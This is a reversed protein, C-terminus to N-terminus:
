NHIWQTGRALVLNGRDRVLRSDGSGRSVRRRGGDHRRQRYQTRDLAVGVTRSVRGSREPPHLNDNGCAVDLVRAARPLGIREVFKEAERSTFNAIQGFDGAMWTTKMRSKLQTLDTAANEM